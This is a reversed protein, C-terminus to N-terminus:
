MTTRWIKLANENQLVSVQHVKFLEGDGREEVRAVMVKSELDIFKLLCVM